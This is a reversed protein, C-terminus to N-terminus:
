GVIRDLLAQYEQEAINQIEGEVDRGAAYIFEQPPRKLTGWNLFKVYFHESNDAKTWGVDAEARTEKTKVKELPISDAAHSSVSSKSGFGRGSYKIDTSKPIKNQMAQQIVPQLRTVIKKNAETIESDSAAKEIAQMLEALGTFELEIKM